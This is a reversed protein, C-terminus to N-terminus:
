MNGLTSWLRESAASSAPTGILRIACEALMPLQRRHSVWWKLESMPEYAGISMRTFYTKLEDEIEEELTSVGSAVIDVDPTVFCALRSNVRKAQPTADGGSATGTDAAPMLTGLKSLQVHMM